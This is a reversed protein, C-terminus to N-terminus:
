PEVETDLTCDQRRLSRLLNDRERKSENDTPKHVRSNRQQTKRGLGVAEEQPPRDPDEQPHKSLAETMDPLSEAEELTEWPLQGTQEAAGPRVLGGDQNPGRSMVHWQAM